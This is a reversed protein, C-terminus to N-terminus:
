GGKEVLEARVRCRVYIAVPVHEYSVRGTCDEPDSVQSQRLSSVM